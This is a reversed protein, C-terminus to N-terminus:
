NREHLDEHARCRGRDVKRGSASGSCKLKMFRLALAESIVQSWGDLHGEAVKVMTVKGFAGTIPKIGQKLFPLITQPPFESHREADFQPPIDWQTRYFNERDENNGIPPVDDLVVPFISDNFEQLCLGIIFRELGLLVLIAFLKPCQVVIRSILVPELHNNVSSLCKRVASETVLRKLAGISIFERLRREEILNEHLSMMDSFIM